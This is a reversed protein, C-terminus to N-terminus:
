RIPVAQAGPTQLPLRVTFTSGAGVRSAVDLRGGHAAAIAQSIPLGLGTGGTRTRAHTGRYYRDFIHGLAEPAIGAGTDEVRVVVWPAAVHAALRVTGGAPTHELANALLNDFLRLLRVGDADLVPLGAPVEVDFTAGAQQMPGRHRAAVDHLLEALPVPERRLPAPVTDLRSLEFLDAVLRSLYHAQETATALAAHAAAQQGDAAYRDAEELYGLMATLPTRLDHGINAVLDRRLADTERLAEVSAEVATAMQNVAQALRGFEDDTTAELRSAYDGAGIREVRRTIRRLPRVLRWTLLGGLLVALLVALVIVTALARRYAQRTGALERTITEAFPQVLLGGVLFGEISYLPALGWTTGADADMQVVVSGTALSDYLGTPVRLRPPDRAVDPGFVLTDPPLTRVVVGTTDLLHVPDPFRAALDVALLPPLEPWTRDLDPMRQEVEEALNDLQLRLTREVLARGRDLALWASLVVAFLGVAVLGGMLVAAVKWFVTQRWRPTAARVAPPESPAASM